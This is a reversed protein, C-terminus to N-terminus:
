PETGERYVLRDDIKLYFLSLNCLPILECWWPIAVGVEADHGEITFCFTHSMKGWGSRRCVEHDDVLVSEYGLGCGNYEVTHETDELRVNLVRRLM